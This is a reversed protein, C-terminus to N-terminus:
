AIFQTAQQLATRFVYLKSPADTQPVLAFNLDGLLLKLAEGSPTNKFKASVHRTTDPEIYIVWGTAASVKALLTPLDMSEIRADVRNQRTRWNLSEAGSGVFAPGWFAVLALVLTFRLVLARRM